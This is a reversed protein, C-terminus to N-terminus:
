AEKGSWHPLFVYLLFLATVCAFVLSSEEFEDFVLPMALSNVLGAAIAIACGMAGPIRESCTKLFERLMRVTYTLFTILGLTGTGLLVSFLSNHPESAFVGKGDISIVGFGYGYLPSKSVLKILSEWMPLRGHLSAISQASKGVFILDSIFGFDIKILLLFTLLYFGILLFDFRKALIFMFLIGCLAAIFSASSTGIILALFNFIGYWKLTNSRSNDSFFYEGICYCCIIAASASYSNTHWASLSFVVGGAFKVNVYMSLIVVLSSIFLIRQEAVEFNPSYYLAVLVAMLLTMFEFARYFTFEPMPSWLASAACVLYYYFIMRVSTKASKSWISIFKTNFVVIVFMFLVICIQMASSIDLSAFSNAPRQRLFITVRAVWAFILLWLLKPVLQSERVQHQM